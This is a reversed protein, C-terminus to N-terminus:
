ILWEYAKRVMVEGLVSESPEYEAFFDDLAFAIMVGAQGQHFWQKYELETMPHTTVECPDTFGWDKGIEAM